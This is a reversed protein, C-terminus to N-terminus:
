GVDPVSCEGGSVQSELLVCAGVLFGARAHASRVLTALTFPDLDAVRVVGYLGRRAASRTTFRFEDVRPDLLEGIM